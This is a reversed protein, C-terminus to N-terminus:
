KWKWIRENSSYDHYIHRIKVQVCAAHLSKQYINKSVYGLVYLQKDPWNRAMKIWLSNKYGLTKFPRLYSETFSSRLPQPIIYLFVFIFEEKKTRSALSTRHGFEKLVHEFLEENNKWFFGPPRWLSYIVESFCYFLCKVYALHATQIFIHLIIYTREDVWRLTTSTLYFKLSGQASIQCYVAIFASTAIFRIYVIMVRSTNLSGLVLHYLLFVGCM